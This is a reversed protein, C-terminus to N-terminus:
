LVGNRHLITLVIIAIVIILTLIVCVTYKANKQCFRRQVRRATSKFSTASSQLQETRQAINELREGREMIREVNDAMVNRVDDVQARLSNIRLEQPSPVSQNHEKIHKLIIPQIHGLLEYANAQDIVMQLQSSAMISRIKTELFQKAKDYSLGPEAVCTYIMTCFSEVVVLYHMIYGDLEIKGDNNFYTRVRTKVLRTIETDSPMPKNGSTGESDYFESHGMAIPVVDGSVAPRCLIVSVIRASSM